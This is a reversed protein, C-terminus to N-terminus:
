RPADNLTASIQDALLVPVEQRELAVTVCGRTVTDIEAERDGAPQGLGHVALPRGLLGRPPSVITM